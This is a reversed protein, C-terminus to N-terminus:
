QPIKVQFGSVGFIVVQDAGYIPFKASNGGRIIKDIGPDCCSVFFIFTHGIDVGTREAFGPSHANIERKDILRHLFLYDSCPYIFL